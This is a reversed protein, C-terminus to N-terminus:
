MGVTCNSLFTEWINRVFFEKDPKVIKYSRPSCAFACDGIKEWANYWINRNFLKRSDRTVSSLNVYLIHSVIRLVNQPKGSLASDWKISRIKNTNGYNGQENKFSRFKNNEFDNKMQLFRKHLSSESTMTTLMSQLLQNLQHLKMRLCRYKICQIKSPKM